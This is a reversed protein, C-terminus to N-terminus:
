SDKSGNRTAARIARDIVQLSRRRGEAEVRSRYRALRRALDASETESDCDNAQPDSKKM